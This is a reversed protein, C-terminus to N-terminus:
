ETSPHVDEFYYVGVGLCAKGTGQVSPSSDRDHRALWKNLKVLLAQNETRALERFAQVYEVPINDYKVKRQFRADDHHELNYAITSILWGVDEGLIRFGEELSDGAIYESVILEWLKCGREEIVGVREMEDLMSRFPMDGSYRAILSSLSGSAGTEPLIAPRGQRDLYEADQTWGSIVRNVRNYNSVPLSELSSKRLAAVDKRTLGTQIAIRASTPKVGAEMIEAEVVRIYVLKMLHNIEGYGQGHKHLIRVLPQLLDFVAEALIANM